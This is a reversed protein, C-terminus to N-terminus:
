SICVFCSGCCPTLKVLNWPEFNRCPELLPGQLFKRFTAALNWWPEELPATEQCWEGFLNFGMTPFKGQGRIGVRWSDRDKKIKM